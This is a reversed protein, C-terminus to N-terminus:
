LVIVKKNYPLKGSASIINIKYTGAAISSSIPWQFTFQSAPVWIQAQLVLAGAMSVLQLQYAGKEVHAFNIQLHQSRSVPNPYISIDKRGTLTDAFRRLLSPRKQVTTSKIISVGGMTGIVTRHCTGVTVVVEDMMKAIPTLQIELRATQKPVTITKDRYGIHSVLLRVNGSVMLQVNGSVDTENNKAAGTILVSAFPVPSGTVADTVVTQLVTEPQPAPKKKAVPVVAIMEGMLIRDDQELIINISGSTATLLVEKPRFGAAHIQLITGPKATITFSGKKDASVGGKHGKIVVSAFPVIEGKGDTILGSYMKAAPVSQPRDSIDVMGQLQPHPITPAVEVAPKGCQGKVGPKIFLLLSTLYALYWFKKKKHETPKVVPTDLQSELMRGCVNSGTQRATFFHYLEADTMATFDVVEKQCSACFKGQQTPNMQLWDEHCPEQIAISIAKKM